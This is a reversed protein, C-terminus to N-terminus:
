RLLSMSGLSSVHSAWGLGRLFSPLAHAAGCCVAKCIRCSTGLEMMGVFDGTAQLRHQARSCSGVGPSLPSQGPGLNGSGSAQNTM